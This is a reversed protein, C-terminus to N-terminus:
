SGTALPRRIVTYDGGAFWCAITFHVSIRHGGREAYPALAVGPALFLRPGRDDLYRLWCHGGDDATWFAGDTQFHRFSKEAPQHAARAALFRHRRRRRRWAGRHHCRLLRRRL